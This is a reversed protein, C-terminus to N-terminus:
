ISLKSEFWDSTSEDSLETIFEFLQPTASVKGNMYKQMFILFDKKGLREELESLLLPGKRYNVLYPRRSQDEKTWISPLKKGNIQQKFAELKQQFVAEGYIERIAMLEVYVAFGENLWNDVTDFKGYSSWYHALEHCVFGTLNEPKSKAISSLAIYAKRAYGSEPRDHLIFKGEPLPGKQGFRENLFKYCATIATKLMDTRIPKKRLDYLKNGGFNMTNLNPALTIAIDLFPSSNTVNVSTDNLQVVGTSVAQWKKGTDLNFNATILKNFQSDIPFWFSDVNLEIYDNGIHNIRNDMPSPLLVGDYHIKIFQQTLPLTTDLQIKIETLDGGNGLPNISSSTIAPGTIKQINLTNRLVLTVTKNPPTLFEINWNADIHGSEPSISIQGDYHYDVQAHIVSSWTLCLFLLVWTITLNHQNCKAINM